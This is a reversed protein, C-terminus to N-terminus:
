FIGRPSDRMSCQHFELASSSHLSNWKGLERRIEYRKWQSGEHWSFLHNRKERPKWTSALFSVTSIGGKLRGTNGWRFSGWTQGAAGRVGSVSVSAESGPWVGSAAQLADKKEWFLSQWPCYQFSFPQLKLDASFLDICSGWSTKKVCDTQVLLALLHAPSYYSSNIM